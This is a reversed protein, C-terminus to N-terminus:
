VLDEQVPEDEEELHEHTYIFELQDYLREWLGTAVFVSGSPGATKLYGLEVLRRLVADLQGKAQGQHNSFLKTRSLNGLEDMLTQSDEIAARYVSSRIEDGPHITRESRSASQALALWDVMPQLSNMVDQLQSRCLAKKRDDLVSYAAFYGAGNSTERLTRGMQRLHDSLRSRNIDSTLYEYLDPFAYACIVRGELLAEVTQIFLPTM